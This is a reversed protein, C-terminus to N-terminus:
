KVWVVMKDFDLSWQNKKFFQNGIVGDIRVGTDKFIQDFCANTNVIDFNEEFKTRKHSFNLKAVGPFAIPGNGFVVDGKKAKILEIHGDHNIENFIDENLININAGSDLLFNCVRGEIRLEMVPLESNGKLYNENFSITDQFLNYEKKVLGLYYQMEERMVKTLHNVLFKGFVSILGLFIVGTVIFGIM